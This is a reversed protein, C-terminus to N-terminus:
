QYDVNVKGENADCILFNKKGMDPGKLMEKRLKLSIWKDRNRTGRSNICEVQSKV